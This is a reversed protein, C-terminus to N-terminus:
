PEVLGPLHYGEAVRARRWREGERLSRLVGAAFSRRRNTYCCHRHGTARNVLEVYWSPRGKRGRNVLEYDSKAAM